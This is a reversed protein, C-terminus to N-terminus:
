LVINDVIRQRLQRGAALYPNNGSARQEDRTNFTGPEDESTVYEDEYKNLILINHCVAVANIIKACKQPAYHLKREGLICRFRNKFIGIAREVQSRIIKHRRYFEKERETTGEESVKILFPMLPYGQDGLLWYKQNEATTYENQFMAYLKSTGWVYSDHVSGPYRANIYTILNWDNVVIQANISHFGKRNVYAMEVAKNIGSIAIQTGDIIGIIGPIGKKAFELAVRNREEEEQSFKVYKADPYQSSRNSRWHM